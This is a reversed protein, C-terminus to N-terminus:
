QNFQININLYFTRLPMPYQPVIQYNESFINKASFLPSLVFKGAFIKTGMSADVTFFGPLFEDNQPTTYRFSVYRFATSFTMIWPSSILFISAREQPRYILQKDYATSSPDSLDTSRGFSYNARLAVFDHISSQIGFEIGQSLIKRYNQPQWIGNSAPLWQIGNTIAISYFDVDAKINFLTGAEAVIGADYNVSKEPKVGPNGGDKYYLENFTPARFSTGISSRFNVPIPRFPRFNVGLKPNFSSGFDSYWDLRASPFLHVESSFPGDLNVVGSAFVGARTRYKSGIM